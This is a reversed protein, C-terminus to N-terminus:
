GGISEKAAMDLGAEHAVSGLALCGNLRLLYCVEGMWDAHEYM